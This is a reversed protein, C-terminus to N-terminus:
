VPAPRGRRMFNDIALKGFYAFVIIWFAAKYFDWPESVYITRTIAMEDSVVFRDKRGRKKRRQNKRKKQKTKKKDEKDSDEEEEDDDDGGFLGLFREMERTPSESKGTVRAAYPNTPFQDVLPETKLNRCRNVAISSAMELFKHHYVIPSLIEDPHFRTVLDKQRDAQECYEKAIVYYIYLHGWEQAHEADAVTDNAFLDADYPFQIYEAECINVRM